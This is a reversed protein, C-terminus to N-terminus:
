KYIYVKRTTGNEKKLYIGQQTPAEVKTGSITFYTAEAETTTAVSHIANAGGGMFDFSILGDTETINTIPKNMYNTGDTNKHFLRGNWDEHSTNTLDTVNKTGPFVQTALQSDSPTYQQYTSNFTGYDKGAPIISMRQHDKIANVENERWATANYDVHYALMGHITKSSGTYQFWGTNQRNELIFYEDEYNDNRILYAVPSEQLTPMDTVTCAENLEKFNLWGAFWREYATFGAPVTGNSNPGNFAGADLLDWCGMGFGGSYSIDYMDPLGLCHSFEHCATGIGDMRSGKIGSLECSVAYTDITVGDLTLAGTGDGSEEGGSLVWEHPWITYSAAGVNEGYGAYICFVMDVMGDGDWDYDAFNVGEADALQCAEIVLECPHKDNDEEDNEGYYKCEKSVTVPGVVDFEIDFKGYSQDYFYDRVSGIHENKNYGKQNFQDNWAEQTSTSKMAKDLYNILIVIGRKEGVYQTPFGFEKREKALREAKKLRHANRRARREKWKSAMAEKLEPALRYFGEGDEVVPTGDLTAMFHFSEDGVLTVTLATSDSQWVTFPTRRAPIAMIGLCWAWFSITALFKNM